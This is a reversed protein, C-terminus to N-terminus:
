RRASECIDDMTGGPQGACTRSDTGSFSILSFRGPTYIPGQDLPIQYRPLSVLMARAQQM